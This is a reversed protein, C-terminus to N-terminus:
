EVIYEEKFLYEFIGTFVRITEPKSLNPNNELIINIIEDISITGDLASIIEGTSSDIKWMDQTKANYFFYSSLNPEYKKLVYNALKPKLSLDM